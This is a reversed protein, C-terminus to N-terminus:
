QPKGIDRTGFVERFAGSDTMEKVTTKGSSGTIAVVKPGVRDRWAAAIAQLGKLTDKVEFVPLAPAAVRAAEGRGQAVLLAAAGGAVAEAIYDHGDTKEGDLAVFLMGETGTRSDTTM